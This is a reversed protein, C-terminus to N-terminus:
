LVKSLFSQLRPNQPNTFFTQPDNQEQIVGEDIFVGAYEWGLTSHILHSYYSVQAAISSLQREHDTSVRAYAAVRVRKLRQPKPAIRRIDPKGM